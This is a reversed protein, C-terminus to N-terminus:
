HRDRLCTARRRSAVGVVVANIGLRRRRTLWRLPMPGAVVIADHVVAKFGIFTDNGVFCPGHVLADHAISVNNGVYVAWREGHEGPCRLLGQARRHRRRGADYQMGLFFPAGEDARVSANAAIHVHDGLVVRGIINAQGHM